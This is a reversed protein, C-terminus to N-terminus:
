APKKKASKKPAPKALEAEIAETDFGVIMRGNIETQPVGMQGSKEMMEKAADENESVDINIYELGKEDLWQKLKHCWPCTSTSYVKIKSMKEGRSLCDAGANDM